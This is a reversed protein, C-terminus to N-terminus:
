LGASMGVIDDKGDFDVDLAEVRVGPLNSASYATIEGFLRNGFPDFVRILPKKGPGAGVIVEDSGDGDVDGGAVDIGGLFGPEFALWSRQLQYSRNFAHVMPRVGKGVGIVLENEWPRGTVERIAVSYGGRYGRGFPYWDQRYFAGHRSYVQIPLAYGAIPAVYIEGRGDSNLDGVALSLKGKYNATYPWARMYLQGDDRWVELKTDSAVVLERLGNGNLDIRAVQKGGAQSEDFAFFGNRAKSGDARFFRLFAGNEFLMDNVSEFTKLLVVGDSAPIAVESVISGDNVGTDQTGHIKEFDGGLQVIKKSPSSNVITLGHAFERRWVDPQYASSGQASASRGLPDGLGVDYEDYWWLQGHDQDGFDFSYYGDELLASTLGFRMLRYNTKNGTNNTNANIFNVRPTRMNRNFFDYREMVSAWTSNPFNELYMGNLEHSYVTTDNNGVIVTGPRALERTRDYLFKMGEQWKADVGSDARGDRNLDIDTTNLFYTLNDWANDYFVGDWYGSGLLDEAVFEALFENWRKGNARPTDNSVNLMYTGPWWSFRAGGSKTLYWEPSISQWLLRRLFSSSRDANQDIAEPNVYVLLAIDPNWERMKKLLDPRRHQIEMDLIVLDWQSLIQADADSLEWRLYTNAIKPFTHDDVAAHAVGPVLLLLLLPLLM